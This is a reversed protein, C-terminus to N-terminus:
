RGISWTSLQKVTSNRGDYRRFALPVLCATFATTGDIRGNWLQMVDFFYRVASSRGSVFCVFPASFGFYLRQLSLPVARVITRFGNLETPSASFSEMEHSSPTSKQAPRVRCEWFKQAMKILGRSPNQAPYERVSPCIPALRSIQSFTMLERIVRVFVCVSSQDRPPHSCHGDFADDRMWQLISTLDQSSSSAQTSRDPDCVM